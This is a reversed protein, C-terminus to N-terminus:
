STKIAQPCKYLAMIEDPLSIRGPEVALHSGMDKLVFPTSPEGMLGAIEGLAERIRNPVDNVPVRKTATDSGKVGFAASPSTGFMKNFDDSGGAGYAANFLSVYTDRWERLNLTDVGDGRQKRDLLYLLYVTFDRKTDFKVHKCQEGNCMYLRYHGNTKKTNDIEGEKRIELTIDSKKAMTAPNVANLLAKRVKPKLNTFLVLIQEGDLQNIVQCIELKTKSDPKKLYRSLIDPLREYLDKSQQYPTAAGFAKAGPAYYSIFCAIPSAVAGVIDVPEPERSLLAEKIARMANEAAEGGETLAQLLAKRAAEAVIGKGEEVMRRLIYGIKGADAYAVVFHAQGPEAGAMQMVVNGGYRSMSEVLAPHGDLALGPVTAMGFWVPSGEPPMEDRMERWCAMAKAALPSGDPTVVCIVNSELQGVPRQEEVHWVSPPLPLPESEKEKM